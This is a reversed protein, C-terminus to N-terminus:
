ALIKCWDYRGGGPKINAHIHIEGACITEIERMIYRRDGSGTQKIHEKHHPRLYGDETCSALWAFAGKERPTLIFLLIFRASVPFTYVSPFFLVVLKVADM